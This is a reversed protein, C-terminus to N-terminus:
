SAVSRVPRATSERVVLEVDITEIFQNEQTGSVRELLKEASLVGIKHRDQRITTLAPVFSESMEIDDFGVVSIDNPVNLGHKSLGSILGFAVMDAACFVATPRDPMSAILDAAMKGSELSFDGRIIWEPLAPLGLRAREATMGKRRADTLVNGAPGTIHAIKRHGLALQHFSSRSILLVKSDQGVQRTLVGAIRAPLSIQRHRVRFHPIERHVLTLKLLGSRGVM